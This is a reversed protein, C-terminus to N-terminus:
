ITELNDINGYTGLKIYDKRILNKWKTAEFRVTMDAIRQDLYPDEQAKQAKKWLLCRLAAGYVVRNVDIAERMPATVTNVPAHPRWYKIRLHYPAPPQNRFILKKASGTIDEEIYWDYMQKWYNDDTTDNTNIWVEIDQGLIKIPLTYETKSEATTVTTDDHFEVPIDGLVANINSVLNDKTYDPTMVAYRDMAATGTTLATHTLCGTTKKFGTVRAWEGQPATLITPVVDGVWDYLIWLIGHTFYDDEYQDKLDTIDYTTTTTGSSTVVGESVIGLERAVM